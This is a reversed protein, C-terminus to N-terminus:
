TGTRKCRPGESHKRRRETQYTGRIWAADCSTQNRRWLDASVVYDAEVWACLVELTSTVSSQSSWSNGTRTVLRSKRPIPDIRREVHSVSVRVVLVNAAKVFNAVFFGARGWRSVLSSPSYADKFDLPNSFVASIVTPKPSIRTVPHRHNLCLSQLFNHSAVFKVQASGISMQQGERSTERPARVM